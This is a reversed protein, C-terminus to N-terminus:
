ARTKLLGDVEDVVAVVVVVVVVVVVPLFHLYENLIGAAVGLVNFLGYFSVLVWLGGRGGILGQLHLRYGRRRDGRRARHDPHGLLARRCGERRAQAQCVGQHLYKDLLILHLYAM